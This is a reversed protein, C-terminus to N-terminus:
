PKVIGTGLSKQDKSFVEWKLKADKSDVKLAVKFIDSSSLPSTTQYIVSDLGVQVYNWGKVKIFNTIKGNTNTLKIGYIDDSSGEPNRIVLYITDKQQIAKIQLPQKQNGYDSITFSNAIQDLEKGMNKIEDNSFSAATIMWIDNGDPIMTVGILFKSSTLADSSTLIYASRYSPYGNQHTFEEELIVELSCSEGSEAFSCMANEFETKMKDLFRQGSLGRYISDDHIISVSIFTLESVTNFSVLHIMNPYFDDKGLLEKKELYSPYNLSFGFQKDVHSLYQTTKSSQTQQTDIKANESIVQFYVTGIVNDGYSATISYNGLPWNSNVIVPVSFDGDKKVIIGQTEITNDPKMIQLTIPTGRQITTVEGSVIITSSSYKSASFVGSNIQLIGFSSQATTKQVQTQADAHYFGIM